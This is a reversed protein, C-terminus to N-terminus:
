ARILTRNTDHGRAHITHGEFVRSASHERLPPRASIGTWAVGARVASASPCALNVLSTSLCRSEAAQEPQRATAAREESFSFTLSECRAQIDRKRRRSLTPNQRM